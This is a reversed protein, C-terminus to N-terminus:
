HVDMSEHPAIRALVAEKASHTSTPVAGFQWQRMPRWAAWARPIWCGAVVLAILPSVWDARLEEVTVADVDVVGHAALVILGAAIANNAAHAIAAPWLSGSRAYLACMAIGFITAGIIDTHLLGFALSSIVVGSVAGWKLTLRRLLLGRFFWEEAVPAMIVISSLGMVNALIPYPEEASYSAPIYDFLWSQIAEPWLLSLPAFVIYVVVLAGAALPIGLAGMRAARAVGPWVGFSAGFGVGGRRAYPVTAALLFLYSVSALAGQAMVGDADHSDLSSLLGAAGMVVIALITTVVFWLLLYRAKIRTFRSDM